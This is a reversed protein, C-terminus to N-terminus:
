RSPQRDVAARSADTLALPEVFLEGDRWHCVYDDPDRIFDLVPYLM